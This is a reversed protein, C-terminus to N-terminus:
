WWGTFFDEWFDDLFIAALIGAVLATILMCLGDRFFYAGIGAGAILGCFFHVWTKFWDRQPETDM